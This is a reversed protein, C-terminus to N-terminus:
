GWLIMWVYCVLSFGVRVHDALIWPVLYEVSPISFLSVQAAILADAWGKEVPM